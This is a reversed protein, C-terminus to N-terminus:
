QLFGGTTVVSRIANSKTMDGAGEVGTAPADAVATAVDDASLTSGNQVYSTV